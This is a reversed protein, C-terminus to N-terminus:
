DSELKAILEKWREAETRKTVKNVRVINQNITKCVIM